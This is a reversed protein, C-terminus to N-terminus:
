RNKVPLSAPPVFGTKPNVAYTGEGIGRPTKRLYRKEATSNKNAHGYNAESALRVKLNMRGVGNRGSFSYCIGQEMSLDEAICTLLLTNIKLGCLTHDLRPHLPFHLSLPSFFLLPLTLPPM